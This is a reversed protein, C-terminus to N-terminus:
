RVFNINQKQQITLFKPFGHKLIIMWFDLMESNKNIINKIQKTKPKPPTDSLSQIDEKSESNM